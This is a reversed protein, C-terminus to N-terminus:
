KFYNEAERKLIALIIKQQSTGEDDAKKKDWIDLIMKRVKGCTRITVKTCEKEIVPNAM